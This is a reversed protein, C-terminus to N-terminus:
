CFPTGDKGLLDLRVTRCTIDEMGLQRRLASLILSPNVTTDGSCPLTVEMRTEEGEEDLSVDSLYPRIDMEKLQKKKTRKEVLISDQALLAELAPRPCSFWLRWRSAALEGPKMVAEGAEVVRLGQPMVANLRSVVEAMDVDEELRFDMSERLGEYGLSLPAAFTIYPHRNFGETYWVPLAARRLARTMTRNLDLHSMYKARGTKEFRIRVSKM